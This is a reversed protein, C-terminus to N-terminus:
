LSEDFFAQHWMSLMLLAYIKRSNDKKKDLHESFLSNINEINLHSKIYANEIIQKKIQAYNQSIMHVIPTPFGLKKRTRMSEPIIGRAAERLLYKTQDKNWKLEDPLKRAIAAVKIDLFPVRLELSNAMTMKDAKALIDGVLWTNIDIYQMKTSESKEKVERYYLDLDKRTYKEGSWVSQIEQESFVTANGIYWDETKMLSRELFKIGRMNPFIGALAIFLFKRVPRPIYQMKGRAFPELYINYGGFLEDAGEGSLVVKVKKSAERALFYLAVASPDAIPEDFHWAIRPLSKLYDDWELTINQHESDIAKATEEAHEWENVEKFGITFTSLKRRHEKSAKSALSAIVGSDIGGSLFSGVPVDAIMHAEVSDELTNRLSDKMEGASIQKQDFEFSWYKRKEFIGTNLDVRMYHGPPLKWVGKFFTEELPNYQFSLYDYVAEDNIEKKFGPYLLLSKIESAFAVTKNDDKKLYYLPKIGFYDLALFLSNSDRDHIAFAFMGRLKLLMKEKEFIYLQLLVETDSDTKFQVGKSELEKKLEKYNYIEGNFVITYRDDSSTIPQKGRKIDIIALRRMALAINQSYFFGEDDPGRHTILDNMDKLLQKNTSEEGIIGIIGCM